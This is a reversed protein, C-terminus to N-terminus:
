RSVEAEHRIEAFNLSMTHGSAFLFMLIVVCDHCTIGRPGCWVALAPAFPGGKTLRLLSRTPLLFKKENHSRLLPLIDNVLVTM